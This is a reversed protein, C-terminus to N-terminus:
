NSPDPSDVPTEQLGSISVSSMLKFFFVGGNASSLLVLVVGLVLLWHVSSHALSGHGQLHCLSTVTTAAEIVPLLNGVTLELLLLHHLLLRHLLGSSM